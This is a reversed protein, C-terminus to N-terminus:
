VNLAQILTMDWWNYKCNVAPTPPCSSTGACVGNILYEPEGAANFALKPRERTSVTLNRGNTLQIVNGFPSVPSARWNIGDQSYSHGSVVPSLCEGCPTSADYVHFIAHWNGRADRYLYPDEYVGQVGGTAVETLLTWPGTLSPATYLEMGGNSCLLYWTGNPHFYPAPNNCSPPQPNVPEWPGAVSSAQHLVSGTGTSTARLAQKAARRSALHDGITAGSEVAEKTCNAPNGGNAAGIHFLALMPTSTNTTFPVVQPNHSWVPLAADVYTYLGNPADSVAHSVQSNSGWHNLSCNNVMEAVFLHYKGDPGPIFNGGWTTVNPKLGYGVSPFASGADAPVPLLDMEGCSIGVWPKYCTCAHNECVGNLNCDLDSGCLGAPPAGTSLCLGSGNAYLQQTPAVYSFLDNQAVNRLSGCAYLAIITGPARSGGWANWCQGPANVSEVTGDANFLWQQKRDQSNCAVTILNTSNYSICQSSNVQIITHTNAAGLSWSGANFGQICPQLTVASQAATVAAVLAGTFASLSM